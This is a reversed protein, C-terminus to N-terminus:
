MSSAGWATPLGEFFTNEVLAEDCGGGARADADSVGRVEESRAAVLWTILVV